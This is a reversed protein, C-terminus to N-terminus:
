RKMRDLFVPPMKQVTTAVVSRHLCCHLEDGISEHELVADFV